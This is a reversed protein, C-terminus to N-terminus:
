PRSFWEMVMRGDEDTSVVFGARVGLRAAAAIWPGTM